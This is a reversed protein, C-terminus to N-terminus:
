KITTILTNAEQYSVGLLRRIFPHKVWPIIEGLTIYVACAMKASPTNASKQIFNYLTTLIQYKIPLQLFVEIKQEDEATIEYRQLSDWLPALEYATFYIGSFDTLEAIIDASKLLSPIEEIVEQIDINNFNYHSRKPSTLRLTNFLHSREQYTTQLDNLALILIERGVFRVERSIVSKINSTPWNWTSPLFSSIERYIYRSQPILFSRLSNIDPLSPHNLYMKYFLTELTERQYQKVFKHFRAQMFPYSLSEEGWYDLLTEIFYETNNM